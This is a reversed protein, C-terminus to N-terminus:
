PQAFCRPDAPSGSYAFFTLLDPGLSAWPVLQKGGTPKCLGMNFEVGGLNLGLLGPDSDKNSDFLTAVAAKTPINPVGRTVNFLMVEGVGGPSQATPDAVLLQAAMGPLSYTAIQKGFQTAGTPGAIDVDPNVATDLPGFYVYVHNPPAGVALDMHGDGDFDGAALSTGFSTATANLTLVKAPCPLAGTDNYQIFLVQGPGQGGVQGGLVIEDRDFADPLLFANALLNAVFFPRFAYFDTLSGLALAPCTDSAAYALPATPDTGLVYVSNDGVVVFDSPPAGTVTGTVNGAAVSIGLRTIGNGGPIGSQLGFLPSGDAKSGLTLTSVRGPPTQTGGFGPTGLIILGDARVASSYVLGGLAATETDSAANLTVKGNMDYDALALYSSDKRLVLMRAAVKTAPDPAPLPLVFLSGTSSGPTGLDLVPAKDLVSNFDSPNCALFGFGVVAALVLTKTFRM